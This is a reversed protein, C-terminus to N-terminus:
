IVLLSRYAMGGFCLLYYINLIYTYLPNPMLYGVITSIGHFCVLGIVLATFKVYIEYKAYLNLTFSILGTLLIYKGLGDVIPLIHYM